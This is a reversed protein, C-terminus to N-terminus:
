SPRNHISLLSHTLGLSIILVLGIEDHSHPNHTNLEPGKWFLLLNPRQFVTWHHQPYDDSLLLTKILLHPGSPWLSPWLKPQHSCHFSAWLPFLLCEVEISILFIFFSLFSFGESWAASLLVLEMLMIKHKRLLSCQLSMVLLLFKKKEKKPQKEKLLMIPILCRTCSQGTMSMSSSAGQHCQLRLHLVVWRCSLEQGRQMSGAIASTKNEM